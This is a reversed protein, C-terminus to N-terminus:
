SLLFAGVLLAGPCQGGFRHKACVAACRRPGLAWFGTNWTKKRIQEANQAMQPDAPMRPDTARVECLKPGFPPLVDRNTGSKINELWKRAQIWLKFM